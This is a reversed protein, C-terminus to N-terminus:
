ISINITIQDADIVPRLRERGNKHSSILEVFGFEELLKIDYRVAKFDRGLLKALEYISSPKKTKIIHLLKAKENSLISRLKAIDSERKTKGKFRSFISYFTGEKEVIRINKVRIEKAM